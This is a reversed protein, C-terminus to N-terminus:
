FLAYEEGQRRSYVRALWNSGLVLVFGVISQLLSVASLYGYEVSTGLARLIYYDIVDIADFLARQIPGVVAYFMGTDAHFIRGINVITLLIVLPVLSPLNIYRIRQLRNAGDVAAAEYLEPNIGALAALYIVCGAGTGKWVQLVTLITPWLQGEASFNIPDLGMSKLIENVTGLEPDLLGWLMAGVIPWGVFFPLFMISQAVSKFWKLRIENLLLATFVSFFTTAILFALNLKITNGILLGTRPNAFLFRFNRLGVWDSAFLKTPNFDQFAMVLGGMPLYRFLVIHLLGPLALLGLQWNDVLYRLARPLGLRPRASATTPGKQKAM